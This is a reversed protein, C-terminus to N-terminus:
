ECIEDAVSKEIRRGVSGIAVGITPDLEKMLKWSKMIEELAIACKREEDNNGTIMNISYAYDNVVKVICVFNVNHGKISYEYLRYKLSPNAHKKGNVYINKTFNLIVKFLVPVDDPALPVVTENAIKLDLIECSDFLVDKLEKVPVIRNSVYHKHTFFCISIVIIGPAVWLFCHKFKDNIIM